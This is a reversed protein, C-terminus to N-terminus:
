RKGYYENPFLNKLVIRVDDTTVRAELFVGYDM